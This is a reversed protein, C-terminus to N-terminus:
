SRTPDAGVRIIRKGFNEGELLEQFASVANELGEVVDEKYVIGGERLWGSMGELFQDMLHAYDFQIFGRVLIRKTLVSRLFGPLQDPGPPLTADNYHAILGCVPMRSFENMNPLVAKLVSGGVNEFYIDIGEPCSASLLTSFNEDKRNLAANVGLEDKLYACKAESGVIGVVRCEKRRAIQCAVQGVAGSAASIVVTDGAKPRGIELLGVYATFGPMGLVGLHYSIPAQGPDIKRTTSGDSIGHTRWGIYDLVIDGSAYGSLRSELVECITAGEMPEGVAVPEAYSKAASMRGRMYPDLSLYITRLLMQGEEPLPVEMGEMKLHRDGPMGEPREALIIRSGRSEEM